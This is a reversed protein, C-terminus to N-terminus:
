SSFAWSSGNESVGYRPGSLAATWFRSPRSSRPPATRKADHTMIGARGKKTPLGAQSCDLAQIQGKEDLSLVLAKDPPNLYLGVGDAVTDAFSKDISVNFTEVTHPKRGVAHGIPQAKAMSRLSSHTANPLKQQTDYAGKTQDDRDAIV